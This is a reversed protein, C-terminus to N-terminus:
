QNSGGIQDYEPDAESNCGALALLEADLLHPEDNETTQFTVGLDSLAAIPREDRNSFHRSPEEVQWSRYLSDQALEPDPYEYVPVKGAHQDDDSCLDADM